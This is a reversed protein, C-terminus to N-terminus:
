LLKEIEKLTLSPRHIYQGMKLPVQKPLPDGIKLYTNEFPMVKPEDFMEYSREEDVVYVPIGMLRAFSEFTSGRPTFVASYEPLRDKIDQLISTNTDSVWKDVDGFPLTKDNLKITWEFQPYAERLKNFTILNYEQLDRVWHLAVFVAKNGKPKIKKIDDYIPNGSVIIRNEPVGKRMLSEKSKQGLALYRDSIPKRNNLEYDFLSGFGHEYCVVRKGLSRILNVQGEFPWDAWMFVVEAKDVSDVNSPAWQWFDHHNFVFYKM